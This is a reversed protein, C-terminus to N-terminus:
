ENPRPARGTELFTKVRALDANMESRPDSLLLKAVAHGLRGAAPHYAMQVHVRTGDGQPEFHVMGVHQVQSGPKTRWELRRPPDQRTVAADWEVPTGLPGKVTWHWHGSAGARRVEIVHSMYRPFNEFDSWFAYVRDVPANIRITKQVHVDRKTEVNFLQSLTRGAAGQALLSLGAWRAASPFFGRRGRAAAVLAGGALAYLGRAEASLPGAFDVIAGDSRSGPAPPSGGGVMDLMNEVERVGRVSSAALLARPAEDRHLEGELIVHGNRATVLVASPNSVAHGLKGRIRAEIVEDSATAAGFRSMVRARLGKLQNSARRSTRGAFDSVDNVRGSFRSRAGTRRARGRDPDLFYMLGAGVGAGLLTEKSAM